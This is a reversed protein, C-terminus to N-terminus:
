LEKELKRIRDRIPEDYEALISAQKLYRYSKRKEGLKYYLDSIAIIADLNQLNEFLAQHLSDLKEETDLQALSKLYYFHSREVPSSSKKIWTGAVELSKKVKRERLLLDIYFTYDSLLPQGEDIIKSNYDLVKTINGLNQYIEIGYRLYIDSDDRVLLKEIFRAARTWEELSIAEEILLRLSGLSYPNLELSGEMYARGEGKNGTILLLAGYLARLGQDDPYDNLADKLLESAQKYDGGNILIAGRVRVSEKSRGMVSEIVKLLHLSRTIQGQMRLIDAYKLTMTMDNPNLALSNTVLFTARELENSGVLIDVFIYTIEIHHKYLGYLEEMLSLAKKYEGNKVLIRIIGLKAPYSKDDLELAKYYGDLAERFLEQQELLYAKIYIPLFSISESSYITDLIELSRNVVADSNTFLSATSSLLLTFFNVEDNPIDIIDGEGVNAVIESLMGSKLSVVPTNLNEYYPYVLQLLSTAVFKLVEGQETKGVSGNELLIMAQGLSSLSGDEVMLRITELIAVDRDVSNSIDRGTSDIESPTTSCYTFGILVPVILLLKINLIISLIVYFVELDISYVRISHYYQDKIIFSFNNIPSGISSVISMKPYM